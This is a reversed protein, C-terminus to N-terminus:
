FTEKFILHQKFNIKDRGLIEGIKILNSEM